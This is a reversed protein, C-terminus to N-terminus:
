DEEILVGNEYHDVKVIEGTASLLIKEGHMKDAKYNIANKLAGNEHYYKWLGEKLGELYSGSDSVIGDPYYHMWTGNEVGAAYMGSGTLSGSEDHWQWLSDKQGEMFYGTSKIMGNEHWSTWEGTELNNYLAGESMKTGSDYYRTIYEGSEQNALTYGYYAPLLIGALILPLRLWHLAPAGKVDERELITMKMSSIRRIALFYALLAALGYFVLDLPVFADRMTNLMTDPILFDTVKFIGALQVEELFGTMSLYYGLLSGALAFLAALIGFIWHIGAGFYRVSLGVLLGVGLAMYVERYGTLADIYAWAVASIATVLLGGILAYLFSQYRRLKKKAVKSPGKKELAKERLEERKVATRHVVQKKAPTRKVPKRKVAQKKVAKSKAHKKRTGQDGPKPAPEFLPVFPREETRVKITDSVTLDKEYHKCEEKFDAFKGTLQCVYGHEFDLQRRTCGSCLALRKKQDM